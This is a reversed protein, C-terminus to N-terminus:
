LKYTFAFLFVLTKLIKIESTNLCQELMAVSVSVRGSVLALDGVTLVNEDIWCTGSDSSM